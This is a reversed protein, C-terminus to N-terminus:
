LFVTLIIKHAYILRDVTAALRSKTCILQEDANITEVYESVMSKLQPSKSSWSMSQFINNLKLIAANSQLIIVTLLKKKRM